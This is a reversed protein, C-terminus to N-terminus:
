QEARGDDDGGGTKKIFLPRLAIAIRTFAIPILTAWLNFCKLVAGLILVVAVMLFRYTRSVRMYQKAEKEEKELAKVCSLAMLFFNLVSIFSSLLNGLLVTYDWEGIFLFVSQMLLSFVISWGAVYQTEKLVIPNIKKMTLEALIKVM